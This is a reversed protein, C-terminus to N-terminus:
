LLPPVYGEMPTFQYKPNKHRRLKAYDDPPESVFVYPSELGLVKMQRDLALANQVATSSPREAIRAAIAKPKLGDSELRVAEERIRERQSPVFLDITLDRTLIDTLGPVNQIDPLIGDLALTVKARPLLHGGDCLQVAYVFFTPVLKRMLLHFDPSDPMSRAFERQLMERLETASAPIDLRGHHSREIARRELELRREKGELSTLAEKVLTTPGYELMTRIVNEKQKGLIEEDNRLAERRQVLQGNDDRGAVEVLERFQDDFGDLQFLEATICSVLREVALQGNFGISNWCGWERAHSCMLNGTIGNGGWVHHHGCYWCRSHQGPFRTRKRAVHLRPDDGNVPKRGRSANRADLLSNLEDFAMEDLHALNPCDLFIPGKPNKASLRRGTEHHKVTRRYGRGPKGKLLTNKYFRRVMAGDWVKRRCYPGVPFKIENFWDAIASCNLTAKLRRAGEQIIPTAQEQRKWDAYTKAEDPVDYGSIDRAMAGGFKKFRNMLKQKLRKSTHANHGVHEKCAEMVDQEWDPDNTDIGDNPALVRTGHDVAVGCLRAADPGRILRGIDEYVVLDVTRSRLLAELQALEPRDLQEGKGKTAIITYEVDGDYMELVVDKCHDVQDDLSVDKQKGCGSIRAGIVVVPKIGNRPLLRDQFYM